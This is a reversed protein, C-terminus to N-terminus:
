EEESMVEERDRRGNNSQIKDYITPGADTNNQDQDSDGGFVSHEHASEFARRESGAAKLWPLDSKLVECCTLYPLPERTTDLQSRNVLLPQIFPKLEEKYASLHSELCSAGKPSMPFYQHFGSLARRDLYTYGGAAIQRYLTAGGDKAARGRAESMSQSFWHRFLAISMWMYIDNSYSMRGPHDSSSRQVVSPYHGLIRLEISQKLLDVQGYKIKCVELVEPMWHSRDKDGQNQWQGVLHIIAETFISPSRIRLAVNSWHSPNCAIARFLDQGQRLLTVDISESIITASGIHEAGELLGMCDELVATLDRDDLDPKINYFAKFLNDYHKHIAKTM